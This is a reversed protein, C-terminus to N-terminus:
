FGSTSWLCVRRWAGAINLENKKGRPKKQSALM